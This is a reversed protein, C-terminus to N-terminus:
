TRPEPAPRARTALYTAVGFAAVGNPIHWAAAAARTRGVYGLGVQAFLLLVLIGAAVVVPRPARTVLAGVLLAVALGFTTNGIVGHVAIGLSGFLYRGALFAQVLIATAVTMAGVRLLTGGWSPV